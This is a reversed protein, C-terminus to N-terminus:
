HYCLLVTVQNFHRSPHGMKIGARVEGTVCHRAKFGNFHVASHWKL